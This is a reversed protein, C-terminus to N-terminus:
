VAVQPIATGCHTCFKGEKSVAKGCEECFDASSEAIEKSEAESVTVPVLAEQPAEEKPASCGTIAAIRSQYAEPTFKGEGLM